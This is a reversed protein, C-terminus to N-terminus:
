KNSDDQDHGPEDSAINELAEEEWVAVQSDIVGILSQSCEMWTRVQPANIPSTQTKGNKTQLDAEHVIKHRREILANIDKAREYSVLNIHIKNLRSAIDSYSNFSVKSFFQCISEEILGDVTKGKFEALKDFTFKAERGSTGALPVEKLATKDAKFPYWQVLINRLYDEESAHLLVVSARLIDTARANKGRNDKPVKEYLAILSSVRILGEEYQDLWKTMEIVASFRM